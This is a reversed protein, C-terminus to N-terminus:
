PMAARLPVAPLSLASLAADLRPSTPLGAALSAATKADEDRASQIEALFSRCATRLAPSALGQGMSSLPEIRRTDAVSQLAILPDRLLDCEAMLRENLRSIDYAETEPCLRRLREIALAAILQGATKTQKKSQEIMRSAALCAAASMAQNIKKM